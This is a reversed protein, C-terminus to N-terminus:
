KFLCCCFQSSLHVVLYIMNSSLKPSIGLLRNQEMKTAINMYIGPLKM